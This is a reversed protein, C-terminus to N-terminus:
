YARDQDPSLAIHRPGAGSAVEIIAPENLSLNGHDFEYQVVSDSGLCPVLLYKGRTTFVAQHANVCPHDSPGTSTSVAAGVSGDRHIPMIVVQGGTWGDADNGYHAVALWKGSPHVALHPAGVAGTEMSNIPTLHGDKSDIAFALVKSDPSNAEN